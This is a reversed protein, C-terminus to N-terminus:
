EPPQIKLATRLIKLNEIMVRFYSMPDDQGSAAPDLVYFPVGTEDSLMKALQDPYQPEAFIGVPEANRIKDILEALEKASPAVGPVSEVVAVIELNIDRAFYDFAEHFIVIRRNEAPSLIRIFGRGLSDVRAAYSQANRLYKDKYGQDIEALSKGIHRTMEANLFPSVWAHPNMSHEEPKHAKKLDKEHSGVVIPDIPQSADIIRLDQRDLFPSDSLFAEMGLGNIVLVDAKELMAVDTPTLSYNHPCGVNPPLLSQITVGPVGKVVNQTIVYVPLFSCVVNLREAVQQKEAKKCSSVAILLGFILAAVVIRNKNM